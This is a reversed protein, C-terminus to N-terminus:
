MLEVNGPTLPSGDEIYHIQGQRQIAADGAAIRKALDESGTLNSTYMVMVTISETGIRGSELIEPSLRNFRVVDGLEVGNSRLVDLAKLGAGVLVGRGSTKHEFSAKTDPVLIASTASWTAGERMPLQWVYVREFLPVCAEFVCDPIGYRKRAEDLHDSCKVSDTVHASLEAVRRQYASFDEPENM